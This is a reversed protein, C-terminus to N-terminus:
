SRTPIFTCRSVKVLQSTSALYSEFPDCSFDDPLVFMGEGGNATPDFSKLAAVLLLQQIPGSMGGPVSELLNKTIFKAPPATKKAPSNQPKTRPPSIAKVPLPPKPPLSLEQKGTAESRVVRESKWPNQMLPTRRRLEKIVVKPNSIDKRQAQLGRRHLALLVVDAQGRFVSRYTRCM